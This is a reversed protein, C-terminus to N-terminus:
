KKQEDGLLLNTVIEQASLMVSALDGLNASGGQAKQPSGGGNGGLTTLANKLLKNMDVEIDPTRTFVLQAKTRETNVGALLAITKAKGILSRALDNVEAPSTSTQTHVIITADRVTSADRLLRQSTEQCLERKASALQQNLNAFKALSNDVVTVLDQQPASLRSAIEHVAQNKAQYDSLARYGAVFDVRIANNKHEWSLVKVLGIEGTTAVHTGGCPCCDFKEFDVLRLYDFNKVPQKRLSFQSLDNATVVYTHVPKNAFIASNALQEVEIAQNFTLKTLNLDIQSSTAGMHFGITEADLIESFAASLIHQASHQQMHDFRREWDIAGVVQTTQPAANMIHIIDNGCTYVAIVPNGGLEGLDYPQGGGEPYFATQDLTVAITGNPQRDISMVDATFHQLYTNDYFLKKTSV